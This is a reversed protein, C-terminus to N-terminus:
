QAVRVPMLVYRYASDSEGDANVGTLVAPKTPTTFALQATDTGLASLGDLLYTPNFAIALDDGTFEVPTSESARADESGGAELTLVESAFALRVPTNREAVLSVRKVVEVVAPVSFTATATYGEPLLSRVPPYQGDLLRTTTRREAGSFGILGTASAEAPMALTVNPASLLAKATDALTRAPVLAHRNFGDQAPQWPLERIALRYRDTAVLSLQDGAFEMHVGTLMPLTDDRGAAIAVQAVAAAFASPDVTGATDPMAPLDPYDEAPMTPLTFRASGCVIEVTSGVASIQVPSNPLARTIEALLRGSVLATGSADATVDITIVSGVEYDFASVTLRGGDDASVSLMIGALVPVAPRAPLSKATWAVADAFADREVQFKM